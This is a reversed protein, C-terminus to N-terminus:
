PCTAELTGPVEEIVGDTLQDDFVTEATVNKGDVQIFPDTAGILGSMAEWGLSPNEFDEVDNLTLSHIVGDGEYRGQEDPDQITADLQVRVGSASEGFASATFSVRDNQSEEPSFACFLEDFTWTEEGITLTASGGGSAGEDPQEMPEEAPAAEGEDAAGEDPQEMPEEAPTTEGGDDDGNCAVALGGFLFVLSLPIIALRWKM